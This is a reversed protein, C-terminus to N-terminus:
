GQKRKVLTFREAYADYGPLTQLVKFELPNNEITFLSVTSSQLFNSPIGQATLQNQRSPLSFSFKSPLSFKCRVNDMRLVKLRKTSALSSPLAAIRNNNLNLETM